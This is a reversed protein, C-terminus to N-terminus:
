TTTLSAVNMSPSSEISKARSTGSAKRGRRTSIAVVVAGRGAGANFAAHEMMMNLGARLLALVAFGGLLRAPVGRGALAAGLSGAVCYAQGVAAAIGLLMDVGSPLPDSRIARVRSPMHVLDIAVRLATPDGM